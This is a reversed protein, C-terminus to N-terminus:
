RVEPGPGTAWALGPESRVEAMGADRLLTAVEEHNQRQEYLPGYWDITDLLTMTYQMGIGVGAPHVSCIPLFRNFFRVVPIKAMILSPVFFLACLIECFVHLCRVPWGPTWRRLLYKIVQYRSLPDVEYFNFFLRGGPKVYRTLARMVAAPDATHQIVGACHVADFARERLPLRLLDAQLVAVDGRGPTADTPDDANARCALVASSLDCAIVTAGAEAMVDTFRGAGCGADLIVKGKLSDPPWGTDAFFRSASLAHGALRDVQVTRFKQWQVGFNKAYDDAAGVFRPIGDVIPFSEGCAACILKAEGGEDKQLGGGCAPCALYSSLDQM